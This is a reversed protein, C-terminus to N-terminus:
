FGGKLAKDALQWVKSGNSGKFLVIDKSSMYEGLLKEVDLIDDCKYVKPIVLNDALPKAFEGVTFVVDIPLKNIYEAIQIHINDSEEGLELMQGLVAVARYDGQKKRANAIEVLCTIGAKMSDANANYADDIVLAGNELQVINLRHDSLLGIKSINEALESLEQGLDNALCCAALTNVVNHKGLLPLTTQVSTAPSCLMFNPHQKDDLTIKKLGCTM